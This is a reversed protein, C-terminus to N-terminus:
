KVSAAIKKGYGARPYAIAALTLLEWPLRVECVVGGSPYRIVPSGKPALSWVVGRFERYEGYVLLRFRVVQGVRRQEPWLPTPVVEDSVRRGNAHLNGLCALSRQRVRDGSRASEALYLYERGGIKKVRLFM